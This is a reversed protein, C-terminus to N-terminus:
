CIDNRRSERVLREVLPRDAPPLPLRILAEPAVWRVEQGERGIPRGSVLRAEYFLLLIEERGGRNWAFTIPAGVTVEIGLEEELERQLAAEATEDVEVRGGPFEWLGELPRGVPRRSVLVRGDVALIVAAVVLIM